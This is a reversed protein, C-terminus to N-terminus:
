SDFANLVSITSNLTDLIKELTEKQMERPVETLDLLRKGFDVHSRMAKMFREYKAGGVRDGGNVSMRLRCYFAPVALLWMILVWDDAIGWMESATDTSKSLDARHVIRNRRKAMQTLTPHLSKFPKPDIGSLKLAKDLDGGSYFCWSTRPNRIHGRVFDEFTAHLFVVISRLIDARAGESQLMGTPKLAETSNLLRVLGNIRSMNQLFRAQALKEKTTM